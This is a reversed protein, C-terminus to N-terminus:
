IQKQLAMVPVGLNQDKLSFTNLRMMKYNGNRFKGLYLCAQFKPILYVRIFKLNKRDRTFM